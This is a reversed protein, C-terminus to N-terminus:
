PKARETFSPDKVVTDLAEGVSEVTIQGSLGLGVGLNALAQANLEKELNRTLLVKRGALPSHGNPCAWAETTCCRGSAAAVESAVSLPQDSVEFGARRAEATWKPDANRLYCSVIWGLRRLYVPFAAGCRPLRRGPLRSIRPESTQPLAAGRCRELPAPTEIRLAHQPHSSAIPPSLAAPRQSSTRWVKQSRGEADSKPEVFSALLQESTVLPRAAPDLPPFAAPGPLPSFFGSSAAVVPHSGFAALEPASGADAVVLAAREAQDLKAM